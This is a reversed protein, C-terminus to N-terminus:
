QERAERWPRHHVHDVFRYFAVQGLIATQQHVQVRVFRQAQPDDVAGPMHSCALARNGGQTHGAAHRPLVLASAGQKQPRVPMANPHKRKAGLLLVMYVPM